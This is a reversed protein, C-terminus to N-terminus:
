PKWSPHESSGNSTSVILVTSPTALRLGWLQKNGEQGRSFVIRTGDPSWAPEDDINNFTLQRQNTGDANMVWIQSNRTFAIMTGDPSWAPEGGIPSGTLPRQNAGNADMVMILGDDEDQDVFVIKTGDPSMAPSYQDGPRNTLNVPTGSGDANIMWIEDDGTRYSVFLLKAGDASWAPDHDFDPDGAAGANTTLRRENTGDADIVHIEGRSDDRKSRFAVKQGNPSWVPETRPGGGQAAPLRLLSNATQLYLDTTANSTLDFVVVDGSQLIPLQPPPPPPGPPLDFTASVQRTVDVDSDWSLQCSVGVVVCDGGWSRFVSAPNAGAFAVLNVSGPGDAAPYNVTCINGGGTVTSCNLGAGTVTGTGLGPLTASIRVSIGPQNFRATVVVANGSGQGGVSLTCVGFQPVSACGTWSTFTSLGTAAATITFPTANQPQDVQIECIGPSPFTCSLTGGPLGSSSITGTGDGAGVVRITVRSPAPPPPAANVIIAASAQRTSPGSPTTATASATVTAAGAAIAILDVSPGTTGSLSVIGAPTVAWNVAPTANLGPTLTVTATLPQTSGGVQMTASAPSVTVSAIGARPGATARFGVTYYTTGIRATVEATQEGETEGLQWTATVRGNSTRPSANILTGGGSTVRWTADTNEGVTGPANTKGFWAELQVPLVSGVEGSQDNGDVVYFSAEWTSCAVTFSLCWCLLAVARTAQRPM